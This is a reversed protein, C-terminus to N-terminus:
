AKIAARILGATFGIMAGIVAAIAAFPAGFLLGYARSYGPDHPGLFIILMTAVGAVLGGVITYLVITKLASFIRSFTTRTTEFSNM